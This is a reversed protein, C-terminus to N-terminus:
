TRKRREYKRSEQQIRNANYIRAKCNYKCDNDNKYLSVLPPLASVIKDNIFKVIRKKFEETIVAGTENAIQEIYRHQYIVKKKATTAM